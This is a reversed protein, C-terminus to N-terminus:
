GRALSLKGMVLSCSFVNKTFAFSQCLLHSREWADQQLWMGFQPYTSTVLLLKMPSLQKGSIIVMIVATKGVNPKLKCEGEGM